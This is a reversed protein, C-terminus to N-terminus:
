RGGGRGRRGVGGGESDRSLGESVKGEEEEEDEGGESDDEEDAFDLLGADTQQLYAYFEPDRAKLAELQSKHTSIESVLRKNDKVVPDSAADADEAEEEEEGDDEEEDEGEGAPVLGASVPPVGVLGTFAQGVAVPHSMVPAAHGHCCACVHRDRGSAGDEDEDEELAEEDDELDDDDDDDDGDM